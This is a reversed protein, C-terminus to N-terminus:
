VLRGDILRWRGFFRSVTKWGNEFRKDDGNAGGVGVSVKEHWHVSHRGAEVVSEGEKEELRSRVEKM